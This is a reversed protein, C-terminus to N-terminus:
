LEEGAWRRQRATPATEDPARGADYNWVAPLALGLVGVGVLSAVGGTFASVAPSTLAALAGAEVDGLSPGGAGVVL